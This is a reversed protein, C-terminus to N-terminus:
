DSSTRVIFLYFFFLKKGSVRFPKGTLGPTSATSTDVAVLHREDYNVSGAFGLHCM